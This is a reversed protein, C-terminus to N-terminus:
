RYKLPHDAIRLNLDDNALKRPCSRVIIYHVEANEDVLYLAGEPRPQEDGHPEVTKALAASMPLHREMFRTKIM